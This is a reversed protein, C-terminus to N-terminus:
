SVFEHCQHFGDRALRSETVIRQDMV